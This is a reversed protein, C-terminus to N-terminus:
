LYLKKETSEGTSNKKTNHIQLLFLLSQSVPLPDCINNQCIQATNHLNAHPEGDGRLLSTIRPIVERCERCGIGCSIAARLSQTQSYSFQLAVGQGRSSSGAGSCGKLRWKVLMLPSSGVYRTFMSCRQCNPTIEWFLMVIKCQLAYEPLPLSLDSQAM